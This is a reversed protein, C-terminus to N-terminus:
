FQRIACISFSTGGGSGDKQTSSQTGQLSGINIVMFTTAYEDGTSSQSSTWYKSSAVFQTGGCASLASNVTTFNLSLYYMEAFTPMYWGSTLESGSLAETSYEKAWFFAPYNEASVDETNSNSLIATKIQDLNDGGDKDASADFTYSGASGSADCLISNVTYGSVYASSSCWNLGSTQNLGVGLTRATGDNSCETGSYFIVAIASSKQTDTLSSYSEASGDSFVVDGVSLTSGPQKSGIYSPTGNSAVARVVRLGIKDHENDNTNRRAQYYLGDSSFDVESSEISSMAYRDGETSYAGTYARCYEYVDVTTNNAIGLTSGEASNQTAILAWETVNPLRYGSATEEYYFYDGDYHSGWYSHNDPVNYDVVNDQSYYKGNGDAVIGAASWNAPNTQKTGDIMLSYVPTLNEAMSRLNCYTIAEAWSIYYVPTNDKDDSANPRYPLESGSQGEETGSVAVGYYTMFQEWETQTVEHKCVYMNPVFMKDDYGEAPSWECDWSHPAMYGGEVYAFGQPIQNAGSGNPDYNYVWTVNGALLTEDEITMADHQAESGMYYITTLAACDEFAYRGISTIGAPLIVYELSTCGAFLSEPLETISEPITCSTLGSGAFASQSLYTVCSPIELSTLSTCGDFWYWIETMGESLTVSALSSCGLFIEASIFTVSSPITIETLSTCNLFDCDELYTLTSPLSCEELNTCGAFVYSLIKTVGEPIVIGRLATLERFADDGITTIGVVGSMDLKVRVDLRNDALTQFAEKMAELLADPENAYGSVTVTGSETMSTIEEVIYDIDIARLAKGASSIIGNSNWLAFKQYENAVTTSTVPVYVGTEDNCISGMTIAQMDNYWSYFSLSAVPTSGTLQSLIQVPAVSGESADLFVCNDSEVVASGGMAFTAYRNGSKWVYVGTKTDVAGENEDDDMMYNLSHNSKITGGWMYFSAGGMDSDGGLYVGGGYMSTETGLAGAKNDWITVNDRMEVEGSLSVAIGGGNANAENLYIEVNDSLELSNSHYGGMFIGGGYGYGLARNRSIMSNGEIVIHGDGAFIGGGDGNEDVDSVGATNLDITGGSMYLSGGNMYIGGGRVTATNWKIYTGELVAVSARSNGMCIGGGNDARGNTLMINQFSVPVESAITVVSGSQAADLTDKPMHTTADIGNAGKITVSRAALATLEEGLEQPGIVKGDIFITYDADPNNMKAVAGAITALPSDKKGTNSDNGTASVYFSNTSLTADTNFTVNWVYFKGAEFAIESPVDFKFERNGDNPLLVTISRTESTSGEADPVVIAAATATTANAEHTVNFSISDQNMPGFSLEGTKLDFLTLFNKGSLKVKMGVLSDATLSSLDTDITFNIQVRSFQHTFNLSVDADYATIGSKSTWLLDLRTLDSQDAWDNITYFPVYSTGGGPQDVVQVPINQVYTTSYPYYAVVSYTEDNSLWITSDANAATCSNNQPNVLFRVNANVASALEGESNYAYIGIQDGSEWTTGNLRTNGDCDAVPRFPVRGDVSKVVDEDKCATLFCINAVCFVSLFAKCIDGRNM